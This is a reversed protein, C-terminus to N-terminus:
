TGTRCARAIREDSYEPEHLSFPIFSSITDTDPRVGVNQMLLTYVLQVHAHPVRLLHLAKHVVHLVCLTDLLEVHAHPVRLLHLAKHVVHLV